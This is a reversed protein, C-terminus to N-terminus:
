FFRALRVMVFDDNKAGSFFGGDPVNVSWRAEVEAKWHDTLRREAEFSLFTEQTAKDVLAGALISSDQEDNFTMRGGIFADNNGLAAPASKDRGDYLYEALIGIDAQSEAVQYFTYEVGAVSAAFRDGHGARGIAELKWLWSGKTLQADLGSQDIIDYHPQFVSVGDSRTVTKMVPERSTGHFQSIGIDIDGITHAWRLAIDVHKNESSSDYTADDQQIPKPGRLRSEDDAFTRERFGPLVFLGFSGWDSLFNANLLPQGLKDEGDVNDVADTQNIIDVLHRSETVGWFVKGIGVTTDWSNDLHVWSLERVDYHSRREDHTDFRAYPTFTLTDDGDNLSYIFEPEIVLSPSISSHEQGSFSSGGPFARIELATSGGLEFEGAFSEAVNGSVVLLAALTLAYPYRGQPHNKSYLTM